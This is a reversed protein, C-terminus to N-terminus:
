NNATMLQEIEAISKPANVTLNEHGQDTVAINDEIRIAIGRWKKDVSYDDLPIYIGPEITMVMGQEFARCQERKDNSQYDGVDHVDLGLWHGLGHIFYKKCAKDELLLALNGSLIGLRHLGSTLFNNVLVNLEAFTAHPKIADIALNQADLVLQYVERQALTFKGNAPFTRTIDAAYGSLEGGADILVLENNKLVDDNNTYHLINGNDGCAVISGYAPHRAGNSAFEHLIEAELQYEFKGIASQKMARAHAAGSIINVQRMIDLEGASKILRMEEIINRCDVLLTPAKVGLRSQAKVASLWAYIQSDLRTSKGQCFLLHSKDAIYDPLYQDIETLPFCEDVGYHEVALTQGVRRGHWVEQLADKELNFLISQQNEEGKDASKTLVLVADPENYGTLYYFSKDQCFAYETDNSRTVEQAASFIAISNEPMSAFFQARRQIFEALPLLTNKVLTSTNM